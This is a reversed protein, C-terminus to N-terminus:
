GSPCPIPLAELQGQETGQWHAAQQGEPGIPCLNDFPAPWPMKHQCIITASWGTEQPAQRGVQLVSHRVICWACCEQEAGECSVPPLEFVAAHPGSALM